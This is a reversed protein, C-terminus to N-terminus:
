GPFEAVVIGVGTTMGETVGVFIIGMLTAVDVGTWQTSLGDTLQLSTLLM